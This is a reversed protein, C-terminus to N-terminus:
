TTTASCSRFLASTADMKPSILPSPTGSDMRMSSMFRGRQPNAVPVMGEEAGLNVENTAEAPRVGVDHHDAQGVAHLDGDGSPHQVRHCAVLQRGRIARPDGESGEATKAGQQIGL